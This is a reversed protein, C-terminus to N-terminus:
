DKDYHKNLAGLLDLGKSHGVLCAVHTRISLGEQESGQVNGLVRWSDLQLKYSTKEWVRTKSLLTSIM